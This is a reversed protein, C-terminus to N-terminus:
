KFGKNFMDIIQGITLDSIMDYDEREIGCSKGYQKAIGIIDTRHKLTFDASCVDPHEKMAMTLFTLLKDIQEKKSLKLFERKKPM